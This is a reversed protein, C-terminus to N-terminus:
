GQVISHYFHKIKESEFLASPHFIITLPTNWQKCSNMLDEYEKEINTQDPLPMFVPPFEMIPLIKRETCHYVPFPHGTGCRFGNSRSFLLSSDRTFGSTDLLNWLFPLRFRLYHFRVDTVPEELLTELEKKEELLLHPHEMVKYSPHLGIGMQKTKLIAVIRKKQEQSLPFFHDYRTHKGILLYFPTGQPLSNVVKNLTEWYPDQSRTYMLLIDWAKKPHMELFAYRIVKKLPFGNEQFLFPHDIDFTFRQQYFFQSKLPFGMQQFFYKLLEVYQNVIPLHLLNYQAAWSSSAPFRGHRDADNSVYEEWRSLFFFLTAILDSHLSITEGESEWEPEGFLVPLKGIPTKLWKPASPLFAADLYFCPRTSLRFFANRVQIKKGEPLIFWYNSDHPGLIVKYPVQFWYEFLTTLVYRIEPQHTEPIQIHIM